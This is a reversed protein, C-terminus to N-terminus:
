CPKEHRTLWGPRPAHHTDHHREMADHAALPRDTVSTKCHPWWFCRVTVAPSPTHDATLM